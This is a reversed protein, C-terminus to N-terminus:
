EHKVKQDFVVDLMTENLTEFKLKYLESIGALLGVIKDTEESSISKFFPSDWIYSTVLELDDVINWCQFVQQELDHRTKM